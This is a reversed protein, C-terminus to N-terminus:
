SGAVREPTAGASAAPPEALFHRAITAFRQPQDAYAFHGAGEFVVLGADPILREMTEGDSLPTEADQDGWVLLTPARIRGMVGTLDTNVLKVFTARLAPDTAAYDGSASRGVLRRGLARGPEGLRNLVHKALKARAVRRYWGLTRPARVGAADVLVLREVLEPHHAALQIAIRGGHSHGVISVREVGLAAILARTWDAYEEVGWPAPPMGTQGFGPLDVAHVSCVRSLGAVIPQVAEISAGWGHLVLVEPGSGLSRCRTQIGQIDLVQDV